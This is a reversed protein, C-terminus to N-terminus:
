LSLLFKLFRPRFKHKNKILTRYDAVFDVNFSPHDKYHYPITDFNSWGKNKSKKVADLYREAIAEFRFSFSYYKEGTKEDYGTIIVLENEKLKKKYNEYSISGFKGRGFLKYNGRYRQSKVEIYGNKDCGDPGNINDFHTGGCAEVEIKEVMEPTVTMMEILEKKTFHKLHDKYNM